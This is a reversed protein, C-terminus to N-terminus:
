KKLDPIVTKHKPTSYVDTKSM